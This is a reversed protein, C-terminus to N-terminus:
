PRKVGVSSSDTLGAPKELGVLAQQISHGWIEYGRKNPHLLDPMVDVPLEGKENLFERNIDLYIVKRDVALASIMRNVVDIKEWQPNVTAVTRGRTLELRQEHSGRPFIGLLLIRTEPLKRQLTEVIAQVGGAIQEPSYEDENSNNTGAMIVAVRPNIKDFSHNQLRWLINETKDAPHGLNVVQLDPFFEKILEPYKNWGATISDGILLVDVNGNQLRAERKKHAALWTEQRPTPIAAPNVAASIAPAEGKAKGPEAAVLDSGFFVCLIISTITKM